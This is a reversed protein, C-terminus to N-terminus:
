FGQDPYADKDNTKPTTGTETAGESTTGTGPTPSAKLVPQSDMELLDKGSSANASNNDETAHSDGGNGTHLNCIKTPATEKKFIEDQTHPCYVSAM